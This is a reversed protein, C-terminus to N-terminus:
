KIKVTGVFMGNSSTLLNKLVTVFTVFLFNLLIIWHFTFINFGPATVVQYLYTVLGAIVGSALSELFEKVNINLFSSM